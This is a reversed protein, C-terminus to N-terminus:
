YLAPLKIASSLAQMWSHYAGIIAGYIALFLSSCVLLSIVKNQLRVGERIEQLFVQRERLLNSLVFFYKNNTSQKQIM